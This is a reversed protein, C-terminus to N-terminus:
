IFLYDNICHYMGEPIEAANKNVSDSTKSITTTDPDTIIDINSEPLIKAICYDEELAIEERYIPGFHGCTNTAQLQLTISGSHCYVYPIIFLSSFDREPEITADVKITKSVNTNTMATDNFEVTITYKNVPAEALNEPSRWSINVVCDEATHEM